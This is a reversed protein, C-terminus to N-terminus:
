IDNMIALVLVGYCCCGDCLGCVDDYYDVCWVVACWGVFCVWILTIMM